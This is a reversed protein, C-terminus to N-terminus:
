IETVDSDTVTDFTYTYTYEETKEKYEVIIKIPLGTEKEFYVKMSQCDDPISWNINNKDSIVYYKKGSIKETSIHATVSSKLKEFSSFHTAYNGIIDSNDSSDEYSIKIENTDKNTLVTKIKTGKKYKELIQSNNESKSYINNQTNLNSIKNELNTFIIFKRITNYVFFLLILLLLILFIVLIKKQKNEM